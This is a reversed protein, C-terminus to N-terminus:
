GVWLASFAKRLEGQWKGLFAMERALQCLAAVDSLAIRGALRSEVLDGVREQMQGIDGQLTMVDKQLLAKQLASQAKELKDAMATARSLTDAVPGFLDAIEGSMGGRSLDTESAGALLALHRVRLVDSMLTAKAKALAEFHQSSGGADPHADKALDRYATELADREVVVARQVGLLAFADDM